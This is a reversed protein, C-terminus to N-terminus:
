AKMRDSAKAHKGEAPPAAADEEKIGVLAALQDRLITGDETLGDHAVFGERQLQIMQYANHNLRILDNRRPRPQRFLAAHIREALDATNKDKSM